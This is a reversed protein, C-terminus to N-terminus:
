ERWPEEVDIEDLGEMISELVTEACAEERARRQALQRRAQCLSCGFAAMVTFFAMTCSEYYILIIRYDLTTTTSQDNRHHVVLAAVLDQLCALLFVLGTSTWLDTQFGPRPVSPPHLYFHLFCFLLLSTTYTGAVAAFVQYATLSEKGM